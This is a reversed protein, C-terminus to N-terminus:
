SAVEGCVPCRGDVMLTPDHAVASRGACRPTGGVWSEAEHLTPFSTVYRAFEGTRYVAWRKSQPQWQIILDNM